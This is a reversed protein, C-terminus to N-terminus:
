INSIRGKKKKLHFLLLIFALVANSIPNIKSNEFTIFDFIINLSFFLLAFLAISQVLLFIKNRMNKIKTQTTEGIVQLTNTYTVYPLLKASKNSTPVESFIL